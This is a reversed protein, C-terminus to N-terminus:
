LFQILQKGGFGNHCAIVVWSMALAWLVRFTSAYLASILLNPINGKNWPWTTFVEVLVILVSMVWCILALRKTLKIHSKTHLLYGTLIGVIYPAAHPYPKM